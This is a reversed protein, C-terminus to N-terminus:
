GPTAVRVEPLTGAKLAAKLAYRQAIVRGYIDTDEAYHEAVFDRVEPLDLVGAVEAASRRTALLRLARDKLRAHVGQPLISYMLHNVGFALRGLPGKIRLDVNQNARADTEMAVGTRHSLYGILDPVLDLPLLHRIVQDGQDHVFREQPIFFIFPASPADIEAAVRDLMRLTTDRLEDAPILTM